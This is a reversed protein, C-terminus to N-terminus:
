LITWSFTYQRPPTEEGLPARDSGQAPTALLTAGMVCYALLSQMSCKKM